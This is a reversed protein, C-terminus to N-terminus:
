GRFVCEFGEGQHYEGKKWCMVYDCKKQGNACKDCVAQKCQTTKEFNTRLLPWLTFYFFAMLVGVVMVVFVTANLEGTAENM